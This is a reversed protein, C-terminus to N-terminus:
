CSSSTFLSSTPLCSAFVFCCHCLLFRQVQTHTLSSSPLLSFSFVYVSHLAFYVFSISCFLAIIMGRERERESQHHCYRHHHESHYNRQKFLCKRINEVFKRFSGLRAYQQCDDRMAHYCHFLVRFFHMLLSLSLYM